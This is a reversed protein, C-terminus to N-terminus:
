YKTNGGKADIVVKCRRPMSDVLNHLISLPISKWAENLCNFLEEENNVKRKSVMTDLISWLNEIPNLDPSQAPWDIKEINNDLFWQRVIIATHKPDNDQQFLFNERGFLLDASALMPDELIDLYIYGDMIGRIRHLYGIGHYCFAGWVNIKKDHKITGVLCNQSYRENHMRWVRKRRNFRLVFPSEDTWLVKRWQEPTWNIHSKAWALRKRKNAVSIFPKKYAWYSNLESCEKIRSRITNECLKPLSLDSIIQKATAFRDRKVFLIIATDDYQSTKRKRGRNEPNELSKRDNWRKYFRSITRRDKNIKLGVQTFDM